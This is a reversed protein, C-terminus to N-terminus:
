RTMRQCRGDDLFSQLLQKLIQMNGMQM